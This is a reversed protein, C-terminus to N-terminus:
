KNEIKQICEKLSDRWYPIEIGFVQKVKSKDLVSFRPRRAKSPFEETHCPQVDCAHGSLECIAKAFDYWSVAGENSYHYIGTNNLLNNDIINVIVKALDRAYTPTGIQDFVVKISPREATLQRITKVFNKGYPSYLWATRFLISGCGSKEIEKEGSLKTSGYVGLPFTPWDERCPEPRDGQFVYDTSIHIFTAGRDAAVKALNGVAVSNLLEAMAPEDEAKDVNTYGACNVIVDVQESECVLRVADQNTIDLHLTEAGPYSIVDSFLYRNRSGASVERIETGLQGNAGTVLVNM